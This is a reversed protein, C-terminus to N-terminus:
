DQQTAAALQLYYQHLAAVRPEIASPDGSNDIVDDACALRQERTVQAALINEAQRRTVGDRATTRALQTERDVDIVLVRDARTQLGNEILLPVVWLVYPTTAQQICRQTEQQILPHLLNNLWTKETPDAFILERLRARNLSGDPHLLAEGFHAAIAALAPTGPEVVQRAIVDADIVTVGLRSFANAVTSKGSGIGGTLAVLYSM